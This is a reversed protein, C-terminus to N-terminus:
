SIKRGFSCSAPPSKTVKEFADSQVPETDHLILGIQSENQLKDSASEMESSKQSQELECLSYGFGLDMNADNVATEFPELSGSCINHNKAVNSSPKQASGHTDSNKLLLEREKLGNLIIEHKESLSKLIFEHREKWNNLLVKQREELLNLQKTTQITSINDNNVMESMQAVNVRNLKM